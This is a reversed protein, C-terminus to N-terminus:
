QIKQLIWLCSFLFDVLLRFNPESGIWGCKAWPFSFLKNNQLIGTKMEEKGKKKFIYTGDKGKISYM